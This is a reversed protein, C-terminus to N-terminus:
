KEIYAMGRPTVPLKIEGKVELKLADYAYVKDNEAGAPGAFARQGDPSFAFECYSVTSGRPLEAVVKKDQLSYVSVKGPPGNFWLYKGDPSLKLGMMPYAKIRGTVKLGATDMVLIDQAAFSYLYLTDGSPSLDMSNIEEPVDVEAAKKMGALDVVVLKPGEHAVYAKRGDPSVRVELANPYTVVTGTAKLSVPDIVTISGEGMNAVVLPSGGGALALAFPRKGVDISNEVKDSETGIAQVKDEDSLTVFVLRADKSSQLQNSGRGTKVVGWADLAVPDVVAVGEDGSYAVYLKPGAASAVGSLLFTLSLLILIFCVRTKM